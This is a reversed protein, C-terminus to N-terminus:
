RIIRFNGNVVTMVPKQHLIEEPSITAFDKPFVTLDALLGARVCGLKDQLAVAKAANLTHCAVAEHVTLRQEPLWGGSPKGDYDKRTVACYINGAPSLSEVPCDSGSSLNVGSDLLTKWNYSTKELTEGVRDRCIHLDYEVFVPQAYVQVHLAAIRKLTHESTIQCHVIGDPLDDTDPVEKRAFEVATLVSEAAADGIAHVIFPMGRRHCDVALANLEEQKYIPVGRKETADAYPVSLWATRAGLSGDAYLKRPGIRYFDDGQQYAFGADFFADFGAKDPFACQQVVRVPMRGEQALERYAQAVTAFGFGYTGFDDSYIATLGSDAAVTMGELLLEKCLAVGRDGEDRSILNLANEMFWGMELNMDGGEPVETNEDVGMEKLLKSNAVALHGCVRTLRLARNPSIEDLEKRTPLRKDDWLDENFGRGDIVGEPKAKEVGCKVVDFFGARSKIGDLVLERNTVALNLIHLHTDILGPYVAAGQLDILETHDTKLALAEVNGGVFAFRGDKVAVAEAAPNQEDMTIIRGNYYIKDM